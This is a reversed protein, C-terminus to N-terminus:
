PGAPTQTAGTENLDDDTPTSAFNLIIRGILLFFREQRFQARQTANRSAPAPLARIITRSTDLYARLEALDKVLAAKRAALDAM